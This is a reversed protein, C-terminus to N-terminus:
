VTCWNIRNTVPRLRNAHLVRVSRDPMRISYSHNSVVQQITGPGLWRSQIKKNSDPLLVLVSDGVQFTKERTRKNYQEAYHKQAVITNKNALNHAVEFREELQKLYEASGKNLKPVGMINGAWSDRLVQIPGRGPKGYVMQYPTLGTTVNRTTNYAFIIIPLYEEWERPKDRVLLHHLMNKISQNTREVQSNGEPHLPPALRVQIGLIKNLTVNLMSVFTTGNDSVM